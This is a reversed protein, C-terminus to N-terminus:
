SAQLKTFQECWKVTNNVTVGWHINTLTGILVWYLTQEKRRVLRSQMAFKLTLNEQSTFHLLMPHQEKLDKVCLKQGGGEGM